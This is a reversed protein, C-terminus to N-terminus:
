YVHEQMIGPRDRSHNTISDDTPYNRRFGATLYISKNQHAVFGCHIIATTAMENNRQNIM